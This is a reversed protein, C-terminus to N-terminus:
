RRDSQDSPPPSMRLLSNALILQMNTFQWLTPGVYEMVVFVGGPRLAQSVQSFLGELNEVHHVCMQAVVLDYSDRDLRVANLDDRRFRVDNYGRRRAKDAAVGVGASSIEIEENDAALEKRRLDLLLDGNGSGLDLVRQLKSRGYVRQLWSQWGYELGSNGLCKNGYLRWYLPSALTYIDAIAGQNRYDTQVRPGDHRPASPRIRHPRGRQPRWCRGIPAGPALPKRGCTTWCVSFGSWTGSTPGPKPRRERETGVAAM